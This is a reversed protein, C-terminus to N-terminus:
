LLVQQSSRAALVVVCRQKLPHKFDGALVGPPPRGDAFKGLFGAKRGAVVGVEFLEGVVQLSQGVGRQYPEQRPRRQVEVAWPVCDFDAQRIVREADAPKLFLNGERGVRQVGPGSSM